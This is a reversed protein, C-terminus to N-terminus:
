RQDGNKHAIRPIHATELHDVDNLTKQKYQARGNRATDQNVGFLAKFHVFASVRSPLRFCLNQM